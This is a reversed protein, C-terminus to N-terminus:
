PAAWSMSDATGISRRTRLVTDYVLWERADTKALACTSSPDAFSTLHEGLAPPFVDSGDAAVFQLSTGSLLEPAGAPPTPWAFTLPGYCNCDKEAALAFTSATSGAWGAWSVQRARRGISRWAEGPAAVFLGVGLGDYAFLGVRGDEMIPAALGGRFLPAYSQLVPTVPTPTAEFARAEGTELDVRWRPIGPAWTATPIPEAGVAWRGSVFAIGAPLSAGGMVATVRGGDLDVVATPRHDRTVLVRRGATVVDGAVHLDVLTGTARDYRYVEKAADTLAM